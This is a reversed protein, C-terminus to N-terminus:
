FSLIEEIINEYIDPPNAGEIREIVEGNKIVIVYPISEVGFNIVIDPSQEVDVCFIRISDAYKEATEEMVAELAKSQIDMYEYFYVLATGCELKEEFDYSDIQTIYDNM